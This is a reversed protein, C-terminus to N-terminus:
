SMGQLSRGVEARTADLGPRHLTIPHFGSLGVSAKHDVALSAAHFDRSKLWEAGGGVVCAPPRLLAKTRESRHDSDLTYIGLASRILSGTLIPTAVLVGFQTDTLGLETKIQVGIISLVTGKQGADLFPRLAGLSPDGHFRSL